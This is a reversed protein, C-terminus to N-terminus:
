DADRDRALPFWPAQPDVDYAALDAQYALSSSRAPEDVLLRVQRAIAERESFTSGVFTGSATSASYRPVFVKVNVPDPSTPLESVPVQDFGLLTSPVGAGSVRSPEDLAVIAAPLAEGFGVAAFYEESSERAEPHVKVAVTVDAWSGDPRVRISWDVNDESTSLTRPPVLGWAVTAKGELPEDGMAVVLPRGILDDIMGRVRSWASEQVRSPAVSAATGTPEALTAELNELYTYAADDLVVSEMAARLVARMRAPAVEGRGAALALAQIYEINDRLLAEAVQLGGFADELYAALTGLECELGREDSFTLVPVGSRDPLPWNRYLWTGKAFRLLSEALDVDSSTADAVVEATEPSVDEGAQVAVAQAVDEGYVFEIWWAAKAPDSIVASPVSDLQAVDVYVTAGALVLPQITLGTRYGEGIEVTGNAATSVTTAANFAAM